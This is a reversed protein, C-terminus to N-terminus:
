AAARPTLLGEVAAPLGACHDDLLSQCDGESLRLLRASSHIFGRLTQRAYGMLGQRLPLSYLVLTVGYVLNHWGHAEGQEVAQLYRQVFRQDRLPRLRQLQYQGIRRSAAAFERLIPERTLRQDLEILESLENRCAHEYAHHLSALEIPVLVQAQYHQLFRRLAVPSDVSPVHLTASAAGLTVLGELSGLQEMLPHLDGLWEAAEAAAINTQKLM